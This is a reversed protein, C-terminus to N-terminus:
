VHRTELKPLVVSLWITMLLMALAVVGFGMSARPLADLALSSLGAALIGIFAAFNAAAITEGKKDPAPRAQIFSELPVLLLGGAAGAVGLLVYLSPMRYGNPLLPLAALCAAAALLFLGAPILLKVWRNGSALFSCLGGGAALGALEAMVLSSTSSESLHLESIGMKNIVLVQLAAVFWVVADAVIVIALMRDQRLRWLVGLTDLPGLWPFPARPNAAARRPIALSVLLGLLAVCLVAVGVWIRGMAVGGLGPHKQDLALGSCVIGFLIACTTSVKLVSNAKIVYSEPYLEPISGNLAPSFVTSHVGMLGVMVLILGYNETAIGIAGCAMAVCELCKAGIVVNRKAFRDSLWGAPAALLIFPVTFLASAYGQFKSHGAALAVLCASQKFFNDNFVGLSYSAAMAVFKGRAARVTKKDTNSESVM